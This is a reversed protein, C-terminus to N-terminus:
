RWSVAIHWRLGRHATKRLVREYERLETLVPFTESGLAVPNAVLFDILACTTLLGDTASFWQPEPLHRAWDPNGAGQELLLAMSNEDASFFELLPRANLQEALRELSDENRALAQGNVFIDFGPDEGEVVIYLSAAM